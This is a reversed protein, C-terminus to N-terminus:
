QKIIGWVQILEAGDVAVPESVIFNSPVNQKFKRTEEAMVPLRLMIQAFSITKTVNLSDNM